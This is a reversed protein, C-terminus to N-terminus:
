PAAAGEDTCEEEPVVMMGIRMTGLPLAVPMGHRDLWYYARLRERLWERTIPGDIAWSGANEPSNYGCKHLGSGAVCDRDMGSLFVVVEASLTANSNLFPYLAVAVNMRGTISGSNLRCAAHEQLLAQANTTLTVFYVDNSLGLYLTQRPEQWYHDLVPKPLAIFDARIQDIKEQPIVRWPVNTTGNGSDAIGFMAPFLGVAVIVVLNQFSSRM